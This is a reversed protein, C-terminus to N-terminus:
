KDFVEPYHKHACEPCMSHSFNAESHEKVYEEVQNWFGQDDRIMKCFSCIPIIGRLTKIEDLATQLETILLEREEDSKKRDTIDQVTGLLTVQQGTSNHM